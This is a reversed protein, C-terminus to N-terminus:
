LAVKYWWIALLFLEFINFNLYNYLVREEEYTELSTCGFYSAMLGVSAMLKSLWICCRELRNLDKYQWCGWLPQFQYWNIYIKCLNEHFIEKFHKAKLKSSIIEIPQQSIWQDILFNQKQLTKLNIILIKHCFWSPYRGSLDNSITLKLPIQIEQSSLLFKCMSNRQLFPKDPNQYINLSFPGKQSIFRLSINASTSANCHSGTFIQVLIDKNLLPDSNIPLIEIQTKFRCFNLLLILFSIIFLSFYFSLMYNNIQLENLLYRNHLDEQVTAPYCSGAFTSFHHCFCTLKTNNHIELKPKCGQSSWQPPKLSFEWYLCERIETYFLFTVNLDLSEMLIALFAQSTKNLPNIFIFSQPDKLAKVKLGTKIVKYSSAPKEIQTLFRLPKITELFTLILVANAPLEMSYLPMHFSNKIIGTMVTKHNIMESKLKLQFEFPQKLYKLTRTSKRSLASILVVETNLPKESPYWWFPNSNLSAVQLLIEQDGLNKQLDRICVENLTVKIANNNLNIEQQTNNEFSFMEIFLNNEQISFVDEWPAYLEKAGLLMFNFCQLLTKSCDLWNNLQQAINIDFDPLDAYIEKLPNLSSITPTKVTQDAPINEWLWSFNQMIQLLEQSSKEYNLRKFSKIEQDRNVRKFGQQLKILFKNFIYAKEGSLPLNNQVFNNAIELFQEVQLLTKLEFHKLEELIVAMDEITKVFKTISKLLIIATLIDGKLVLNKLGTEKETILEKLDKAEKVEKLEEVKVKVNNEICAQFQDCIKILVLKCQPLKTFIEGENTRQLPFGNELSYEYSLPKDNDKFHECKIHFNTIFAEGAKPHILCSGNHPPLNVKFIQVARGTIAGDLVLVQIVLVIDIEKIRYILNQTNGIVQEERTWKFLAEKSFQINQTVAKLHMIDGQVFENRECNRLCKMAISLQNNEMIKVLQHTQDMVLKNIKSNLSLTFNYTNHVKLNGSKIKFISSSSINKKCYSANPDDESVCNWTYFLDQLDSPNLAFDRSNTADLSLDQQVGIERYNGGKIIASVPKPLVLIFCRTQTERRNGAYEEVMRVVLSYSSMVEGHYNFWLKYPRIKLILDHSSGFDHLKVSGISNYVSWQYTIYSNKFCRKKLVLEFNNYSAIDVMLPELTNSGYIFKLQPVCEAQRQSILVDFQHQYLFQAATETDYCRLTLLLQGLDWFTESAIYYYGKLYPLDQYYRIQLSKIIEPLDKSYLWKNTQQPKTEFSDIAYNDAVFELSFPKEGLTEVIILFKQKEGYFGYHNFYLLMKEFGNDVELDCWLGGFGANCDECIFQGVVTKCKGGNKCPNETECLNIAELCKPGKFYKSGICSCLKENKENLTCQGEHNCESFDCIKLAQIPASIKLLTLSIILIKFM